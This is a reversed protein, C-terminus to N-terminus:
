HCIAQVSEWCSVTYCCLMPPNGLLWSYEHGWYTYDPFPIDTFTSHSNYGFVPPPVIKSSAPQRQMCPFDSTQIVADIDPIQMIAIAKSEAETTMNPLFACACIWQVLVKSSLLCILYNSTAMIVQGPHHRIVDMLALIAYPIKGKGSLGGVFKFAGLATLIIFPSEIKNDSYLMVPRILCQSIHLKQFVLLAHKSNHNFFRSSFPLLYVAQLNCVKEVSDEFVSVKPGSLLKTQFQTKLGWWTRIFSSVM